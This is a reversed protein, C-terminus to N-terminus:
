RDSRASSKGQQAVPMWACPSYIVRVTAGNKLEVVLDINSFEDVAEDFVQTKVKAVAPHKQLVECAAVEVQQGRTTAIAQRTPTGAKSDLIRWTKEEVIDKLETNLDTMPNNREQTLIARPAVLTLLRTVSQCTAPRGPSYYM